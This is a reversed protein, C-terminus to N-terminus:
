PALRGTEKGKAIAEEFSGVEDIFWLCRECILEDDWERYHPTKGCRHCVLGGSLERFDRPEM